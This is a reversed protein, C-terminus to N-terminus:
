GDNYYELIMEDCALEDSDSAIQPQPATHPGDFAYSQFFHKMVFEVGAPEITRMNPKYFMGRFPPTAVLEYAPFYDVFDFKRSAGGALARLTSKTYTNAVLAHTDPEATATLSVPSVTLIVQLAPNVQHLKRLVKELDAMIDEYFFNILKHTGPDFDGHQTGPCMPYITGTSENVWAETLGLTFIFVKAQTFARRIAAFTCERAAFLEAESQFGNPELASRFPDFYRDQEVWIERSQLAPDFAWSIWQWLLAVTYINGTRFSFIGYNYRTANQPSLMPPAPEADFWNYGEHLLARSLTQAFCSGATIIKDQRTISFKAVHLNRIGLAGPDAVATRWFNKASLSQYPHPRTQKPTDPM